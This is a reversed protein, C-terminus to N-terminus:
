ILSVVRVISLLIAEISVKGMFHTLLTCYYHSVEMDWENEALYCQAVASDSGSISAFEDCLSMRTEELASMQQDKHNGSMVTSSM